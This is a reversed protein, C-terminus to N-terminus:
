TGAAAARFVELTQTASREWTFRRSREFGRTRLTEHLRDDAVLRLVAAAIDDVSTPDVLLAADGSVEPMSSVNSTVVPTGLAMGELIPFGFGEYLSPFAMVRAGAVVDMLDSESLFGPRLVASALKEEEVAREFASVDFRPKGLVVLSVDPADRRVRAMARALRELNKRRAHDGAPMVVYPKPIGLRLLTRAVAEPDRAVRFSEPIGSYVVRVRAPDTGALEVLDKKTAESVSVIVRARALDRRLGLWRTWVSRRSYFGKCIKWALDHVTVVYAGRTAFGPTSPSFYVDQTGIDREVRRGGLLFFSLRDARYSGPRSVYRVNAARGFPASRLRESHDCSAFFTWEVDPALRLMPPVLGEVYNHVGSANRLYTKLDVAAKTMM